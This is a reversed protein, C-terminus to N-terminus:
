SLPGDEGAASGLDRVRFSLGRVTSGEADTELVLEGGLLRAIGDAVAIRIGLRIALDDADQHVQLSTPHIRVTLDHGTTSADFSMADGAPHKLASSILLDLARLLRDLDSTIIPLSEPIALRPELGRDRAHTRFADAAGSLLVALNVPELDPRLAGGRIRSLEVVGDILHLLHKGSRGIRAVPELAADPLDGYAGDELLEQYGLIAALPSRLEHTTLDFFSDRAHEARAARQEAIRARRATTAAFAAVGALLLGLLILGGASM